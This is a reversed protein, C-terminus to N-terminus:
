TKVMKFMVKWELGVRDGVCISGENGQGRRKMEKKDLGKNQRDRGEVGGRWVVCVM